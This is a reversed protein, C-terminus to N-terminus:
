RRSRKKKTVMMVVVLVGFGGLIYPMYDLLKNTQESRNALEGAQFVTQQSAQQAAAQLTFMDLSPQALKVDSKLDLKEMKRIHSLISDISKGGLGYSGIYM